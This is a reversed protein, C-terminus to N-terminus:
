FGKNQAKVFFEYGNDIERVDSNALEPYLAQMADTVQTLSLDGPFNLATAGYKVTIDSGKNQAKVFFEYGNDIERVDSNALEPYLAQMADTVQDLSLGEPMELHTAGYVIIM